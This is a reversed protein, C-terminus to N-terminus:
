GLRWNIIEDETLYERLAEGALYFSGALLKIGSKGRLAERLSSTKAPISLGLGGYLSLMEDPTFAKRSAAVPVFFFEQSIRSLMRLNARADKDRLAGFIVPLRRGGFYLLINDVLGKLAQPNHGGDIITGDPMMSMRGALTAGSLGRIAKERPFGLKRSLMGLAECALALNRRQQIGPFLIRIREHGNLMTQGEFGDKGFSGQRVIEAEKDAFYLASRRKGAIRRIANRAGAGINKGCICPVGRKIIGAKEAAIKAITNGLQGCHDKGISCIISLEPIVINTSDLRGGLGCEWVVIDAKKEKFYMLALITAAEFYTPRGGTSVVREVVVRTKEAFKAFDAESIADGDLRFRERPSVLHPSTYLGTRLGAKGLAAALMACVTGKGNTGAVHVFRLNDQPNGAFKALLRTQALGFKMGFFELGSFFELADRYNGIRSGMNAAKLNM